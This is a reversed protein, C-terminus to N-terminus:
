KKIYKMLMEIKEELDKDSDIRTLYSCATFLAIAILLINLKNKMKCNGVVNRTYSM